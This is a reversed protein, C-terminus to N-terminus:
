APRHLLQSAIQVGGVFVVAPILCRIVIEELADAGNASKAKAITDWLLLDASRGPLLLGCDLEKGLAAAANFTCACLIEAASMKLTSAATLMTLQLGPIPATGPNFDSALAVRAGNSILHRARAYETGLFLSTCPLLTAVTKSKGLLAAAQSSIHQLHDISLAGMQIFAESTRLPSMEDAHAKVALGLQVAAQSFRLSEELSFFSKEPFSDVCTALRAQVIEPLAEIMEACYGRQSRGPPIIHLGLFTPFVRPGPSARKVRNILRLLRLEGAADSAYGSKVEVSTCGRFAMERLNAALAAALQHDATRNTESVTSHIGGGAAAIRAYSLGQWRMFFESARSGAFLAHTHSEVFGATAFLGTGDVCGRVSRRRALSPQIAEIQGAENCLLDIPGKLFGCDEATPHRGQKRGFGEGTFVGALNRIRLRHPPVKHALPTNM